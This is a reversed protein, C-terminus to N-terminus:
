EERAQGECASEIIRYANSGGPRREATILGHRELNKLAVRVYSEWIKLAGAITKVSQAARKGFTNSFFCLAAYVLRDYFSLRRDTWVTSATPPLKLCREPGCLEYIHGGEGGSIKKVYGRTELKKMSRARYNPSIGCTIGSEGDALLSVEILAYLDDDNIGSDFLAGANIKILPKSGMNEMLLGELNETLEKIRATTELLIRTDAM